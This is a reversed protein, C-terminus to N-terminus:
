ACPGLHCFRPFEDRGTLSPISRLLTLNRGTRESNATASCMSPMCFPDFPEFILLEIGEAYSRALRPLVFALQMYYVISILTAYM